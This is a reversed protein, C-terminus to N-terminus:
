IVLQSIDVGNAVCTAEVDLAEAFISLPNKVKAGTSMEIQWKCTECDTAVVDCASKRILNFLGNGIKQSYLYYEKKMGYTGAIGCCASDLVTLEVGPIMRLLEVSYVTWGLREMHCPTHYAVKLPSDQKFVFKVEGVEWLQYLFKTAMIVEDRVSSSDVHLLHPYEDRITYASTSSTTLVPGYGAALARSLASVNSHADETAEKILHNVIKSMGSSKEDDLLKVGYGVANLIKLLDLGLQPHHYEVYSGRYYIVHRNFARQLPAANKRFWTSFRRRTYPPYQIHKDIGVLKDLIEKVAETRLASNVIGPMKTAVRGVLDPDGLLRDRLSPKKKAYKIRASLIIDAIRVNSPCSVECRKCNLCYKLAADYFEGNKLRYREGDPGAEKPGPFLPNVATVPCYATCITCKTCQEFNNASINDNQYDM